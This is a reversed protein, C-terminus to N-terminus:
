IYSLCLQTFKYPLALRHQPVSVPEIGERKHICQQTVSRKLEGDWHKINATCDDAARQLVKLGIELKFELLNVEAKKAREIAERLSANTQKRDQDHRNEMKRM